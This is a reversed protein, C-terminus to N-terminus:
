QSSRQTLSELRIPDGSEPVRYIEIGFTADFAPDTVGFKWGSTTGEMESGAASSDDVYDFREDAHLEVRIADGLL